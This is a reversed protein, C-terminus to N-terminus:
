SVRNILSGSAPLRTIGDSTAVAMRSASECTTSAPVALRTDPLKLSGSPVGSAMPPLVPVPSLRMSATPEPPRIRLELDSLRVAVKTNKM